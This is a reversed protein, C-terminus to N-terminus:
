ETMPISEPPRPIIKLKDYKDPRIHSNAVIANQVKKDRSRLFEQLTNEIGDLFNKDVKVAGYASYTKKNSGPEFLPELYNHVWEIKWAPPVWGSHISANTWTIIKDLIKYDIPLIIKSKNEKLIDIFVFGTIKEIGSEGLFSHVGLANKIKLELSQRILFVSAARNELEDAVLGGLIYRSLKFAEASDLVNRRGFEYKINIGKKVLARELIEVSDCAFSGLLKLEYLSLVFDEKDILTKINEISKSLIYRLGAMEYKTIPGMNSNDYSLAFVHNGIVNDDCPKSNPYFYEFQSDIYNKFVDIKRQAQRALLADLTNIGRVFWIINSIEEPLKKYEKEMVLEELNNVRV